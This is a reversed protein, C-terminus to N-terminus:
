RYTIQFFLKVSPGAPSRQRDNTSECNEADREESQSSNKLLEMAPDDLSPVFKEAFDIGGTSSTVRASFGRTAASFALGYRSTGCVAVLNAERWLDIELDKGPRVDPELYKMAMMLCAPGCTFDFHQRYFPIELHITAGHTNQM